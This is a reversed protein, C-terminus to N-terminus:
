SRSKGGMLRFLSRTKEMKCFSSRGCFLGKMKSSSKVWSGRGRAHQAERGCPGLDSSGAGHPRSLSRREEKKVFINWGPVCFFAGRNASVGFPKKGWRWGSAGGARREVVKRASGGMCVAPRRRRVKKVLIGYGAVFFFFGKWKGFSSKKGPLLGQRSAWPYVGLSGAM